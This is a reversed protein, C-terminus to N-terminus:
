ATGSERIYRLRQTVPPHSYKLSSYLPHPNLNSLNDKSLKILSRVLGEKDGTLSLAYEDAEKEHRRSTWRSVFGAPYAIISGIFAIILAKTFFSGGTIGFLNNILEGKMAAYAIYLSALMVAQATLMRRLLHRKKWHGAEHAVVALLEEHSLNKILTDFLVIRKARGIGTFYANTHRTRRSADMKLVKDVRIGAHAALDVAADRLAADELPEFKNFLPEIVYPSLYMMFVGFATLFAWIWLWWRQPSMQVLALAAIILLALLATSIVASKVLDAAWLGATMTNFGYKKEIRFTRYLSFPISFLLQAWYLPIFFAAGALIFPLKFSSVYLGYAGLLVGFFVIVIAADVASAFIGLLASDAYYRRARELFGEDVSGAFEPPPIGGSRKVHSINLLELFVDFAFIAAYLGLLVALAATM